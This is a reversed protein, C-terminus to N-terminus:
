EKWEFLKKNYLYAVDNMGQLRVFYFADGAVSTNELGAPTMHFERSWGYHRDVEYHRWSAGSRFYFVHVEKMSRSGRGHRHPEYVAEEAIHSLIEESVSIEDRELSDKLAATIKRNKRLDLALCAAHYIAPLLTPLGLWWYQFFCLMMVLSGAVLPGIYCMRWEWRIADRKEIAKLLDERVNEKRLIEKKM